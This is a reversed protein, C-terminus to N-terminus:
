RTISVFKVVSKGSGNIATLTYVGGPLDISIGNQRNTRTDVEFVTQGLVNIINLHIEQDVSSHVIVSFSGTNPNPFLEVRYDVQTITPTSLISDCQAATYVRINKTGTFTGCINTCTYSVTATGGTIGSVMGATNITAVSVNGSTWTCGSSGATITSPTGICVYEAGSVTVNPITDINLVTSTICGTPLAYTITVSGFGVGTVIGTTLSVTAVLPASSSWTGGVSTNTLTTTGGVCAETAGAITAPLSNVTVTTTALCGTSLTYSLTAVGSSLGTVVGTSFVVTATGMASSTWTGGSTASSLTTTQGECVSTSGTIAAPLANVSFTVTRSCGTSLSYTVTATGTAISTVIGTSAGVTAIGSAGSTWVGGTTTSTLTSTAGICASVTGTITAPLPNVTVTSVAFCGTPLIYSVTTSGATIGTVIGSTSVVTAILASSSSWTGGSTANALTITGSECVSTAGTIAAPSPNVVLSRTAFCGTPLQYSITTTGASVGTAVGSSIGVSAVSATSSSWTGGATSNVMTTTLGTCVTSSGTIAAPVPNVTFVSSTFCGTSVLTYSITSTGANIGSINGTTLGATAVTTNSSSWTGGSTASALTQNTGECTSLTGSISAPLPNVTVIVSRNCGTPLSYSISATAASLGTVVGSTSIPASTSNSSSWAGGTTINSLSTTTGACVTLAGVITAPLPNVTVTVSRHCGTVPVIYSIVATGASLGSVVGTTVDVTAVATNSSSWVGAPTANSLNLLSGECVSSGGTITAPLANVTVTARSNCGNSLTYSIVSTGASTGTVVGSTNVTAIGAASSTWTGGTTTSTLTTTSTQCVTMTGSLAAPSTNVTVVASARCGSSLTYSISTTGATVGNVLGSTNVTAVTTNSSNWTGGSVTNSLSTTAGTCVTLIGSISAPTANITVITTRACGSLSYSITSTGTGVGVINGTANITAIGPNSSSWTGGPTTSSLLSSAGQCLVTTGTIAAPSTQVTVIASASCSGGLTYSIRATGPSIGTVVGTTNVTAVGTAMSTWTGGSAANALSTTAGACLSLTGTIASAGSNVTVVVARGCGVAPTYSITTTGLVLGTVLGSANVTAVVTNSSSWVGGPTVCALTTTTGNCISLSGTIPAVAAQVTAVYYGICGDANSKYTIITTGAAVGTLLGAPSLTAIDTTGIRWIDYDYFTSTIETSAGVCVSPTGFATFRSNKVTVAKYVSDGAAVYTLITTGASLGSLIGTTATVTAIATNSSSWIGGSVPNFFTVTDGNCLSEPGEIQPLEYNGGCAKIKRISNAGYQSFWINGAADKVIGLSYIIQADKASGGDGTYGSTGNGAVTSLVGGSLKRIRFNGADAIYVNGSGDAYLTYADRLAAATAPGEGTYGVTGNGAVTNIIGSPSISRIRNNGWDAVYLTGDTGITLGWPKSLLAATAPGGDGSFGWGGAGAVITVIGTTSIKRIRGAGYDTFYLNGTADVALGSPAACTADVAPGGDGLASYSGDGIITSIVGAATIKRIRHNDQDAIYINGLHDTAVAVPLSLTASTAYGGDGSTYGGDEPIGAITTIIGNPAIKRVAYESAFYINGAADRAMGTPRNLTAIIAQSGDGSHGANGNGAVTTIGENGSYVNALMTGSPAAYTIIASGAAVATAVGTASVSIVSPNSSSWNGGPTSHALASTNGVCLNKNGTIPAIAATTCSVGVKRIVDHPSSIYINGAADACVANVSIDAFIAPKGDGSVGARGNGAFTTITGSTDIKRIRNVGREAVYINGARDAVANYPNDLYADIAPGNDRLTFGSGIASLKRVLGDSGIKALYYESSILMEGSPTISIIMPRYFAATEKPTPVDPSGMAGTGAYTTIIGSPNVKRIKNGNLECIYVNGLTDVAVGTPVDLEAATAPGGDGVSGPVGNGAFVTIIGSTSIKRVVNSAADTFYVNGAADAALSHVDRIAAAIAPGSDGYYDSVGTGTITTIIGGSTIKRIKYNSSVYMNGAGDFSMAVPNFLEANKANGGDGSQGEVGNGAFTTIISMNVFVEKVSFKGSPLTYKISGTGASLGTAVGTSANISVVDPSNSSWTGGSTTNTYTVTGGLCLQATGLINGIGTSIKALYIMNSNIATRSHSEYTPLDSKGGRGLLYLADANDIAMSFFEKAPFYSGYTRTGASSFSAILVRQSNSFDTLMADTTVLNSSSNTVSTIFISGTSGIRIQSKLEDGADGYYTGWQRVGTSSFKSLYLDHESAPSTGYHASQYAGTSSIGSFSKTDGSVYVNGSADFTVSTLSDDGEGGYYSGWQRVGSTTNFVEIFGDFDGGLTTQHASASAIDSISNTVGSIAVNGANDVSVETAADYESGGIYTGWYRLGSSDFKALFADYDGDLYLDYSGATSMNYASGTIGALYIDGSNDVAVSKGKDYGEGGYYTGWVRFGSSNFKVLFADTNGYYFDQFTGTTAIPAATYSSTYGTMYVNGNMDTTVATGFTNVNGYYTSWQLVGPSKFKALFALAEGTGSITTLHAGATALNTNGTTGCIYVGGLADTAVGGPIDLYYGGGFLTAWTIDPDIVIDGRYSSVEYQLTDGNLRFKSEVKGGAGTLQITYPANETISGYETAATLKGTSDITLSTAGSYKLKIKRPDAGAHVLFEHKLKGDKSMLVWDIGPYVNKYTIKQYSKAIVANNDNGELYYRETYDSSIGMEPKATTNAGILAVDMRYLVRNDSVSGTSASSGAFQYHIQGNGVFIVPGNGTNLKFDIDTRRKKDQDTIQGKNEVFAFPTELKNPNSSEKACLRQSTSLLLFVIFSSLSIKM